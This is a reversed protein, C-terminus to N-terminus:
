CCWSSTECRLRSRTAQMLCSYLSLSLSPPSFSSPKISAGATAQQLRQFLLKHDPGFPKGTAAMLRYIALLAEPTRAHHVGLLSLLETNRLEIGVYRLDYRAFDAFADPVFLAVGPPAPEAVNLEPRPMKELLQKLKADARYAAWHEDVLRLLGRLAATAAGATCCECLAYLAADGAPPHDTVGLHPLLAQAVRAPLAGGAPEKVFYVAADLPAPASGAHYLERLSAAFM